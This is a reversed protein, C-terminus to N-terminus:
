FVLFQIMARSLDLLPAPLFIGYSTPALILFFLTTLGWLVVRSRKRKLIVEVKIALIIFAFTLAPLYHYLFAVRSIFIFPLLNAFYAFLLFFTTEDFKRRTLKFVFAWATLIVVLGALWWSFLNGSLWIDAVKTTTPNERTNWYYIPRRGLPWEYWRSSFPHTASLGTNATYMTKNLEVLKQWFNPIPLNDNQYESGQLTKQFAPTMFADGPGSKNLLLFHFYFGAVYVLAASLIFITAKAAFWNLRGFIKQPIKTSSFFKKKRFVELFLLAIILGSPALGTWKVSLAAGAALGSPVFLILWQPTFDLKRQSLVFFWLALIGFFFLMSDVLIFKSEVLYGNDLLVLFGAALAAKKSNSLALTLKYILPILLAGFLAPLFRLIFLNEAGYSDGIAAFDNGGTFGWLKAFGAILLKGLPPHIDFFYNGSFYYSVFKGFHVEDFVVEAPHWLFLFRSIIALVFLLILWRHNKFFSM